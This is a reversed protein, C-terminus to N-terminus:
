EENDRIMESCDVIFRGGTELSTVQVDNGSNSKSILDNIQVSGIKSHIYFDDKICYNGQIDVPLDFNLHQGSRWFLLGWMIMVVFIIIMFYTEVTKEVKKLM